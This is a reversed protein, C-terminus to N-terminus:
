RKADASIISLESPNGSSFINAAIAIIINVNMLILPEECVPFTPLAIM